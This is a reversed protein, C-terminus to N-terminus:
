EMGYGKKWIALLEGRLKERLQIKNSTLPPAFGIELADKLETHLNDYLEGDDNLLYSLDGFTGKQVADAITKKIDIQSTFNPADLSM